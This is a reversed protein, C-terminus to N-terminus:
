AAKKHPRGCSPCKKEHKEVLKESAELVVERMFAAPPKGALKAAQRVLRRDEKDPLYVSVTTSM